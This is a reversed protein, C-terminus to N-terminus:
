PDICRFLNGDQQLAGIEVMKRLLTRTTSYNKEMGESIAKISMAGRLRIYERIEKREVSM